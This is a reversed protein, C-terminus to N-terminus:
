RGGGLHVNQDNLPEKKTDDQGESIGVQQSIGM